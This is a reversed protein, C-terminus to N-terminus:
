KTKAEKDSKYKLEFSITILEAKTGKARLVKLTIKKGAGENYLYRRLDMGNYIKFKENRIIIDGVKLGAKDAPSGKEVRTVIAYSNKTEPHTENCITMLTAPDEIGTLQFVYDTDTHKPDGVAGKRYFNEFLCDAGFWLEKVEGNKLQKLNILYIPVALAINDPAGRTVIGVVEGNENILPGGSNGPNVPASACIFDQLYDIPEGKSDYIVRHLNSIEGSTFTNELGYPAGIVCIWQGKKLKSADGLKAVSFIDPDINTVKLLASDNFRNWGLLEADYKRKKSPLLVEYKYKTVKKGKYMDWKGNWKDYEKVVHGATLVLGEKAKENKEIFVGAGLSGLVRGWDIKSGDELWITYTISVVKNEFEQAIKAGVAKYSDQQDQAYGPISAFILFALLSAMRKRTM